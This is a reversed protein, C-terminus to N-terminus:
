RFQVVGREHLRKLGRLVDLERLPAVWLISRVDNKGDVVTLLYCELPSLRERSRHQAPVAVYPVKTPGVARAGSHDQSSCSPASADM